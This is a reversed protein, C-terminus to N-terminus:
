IITIMYRVRGKDVVEAPLGIEKVRKESCKWAMPVAILDWHSYLGIRKYVGFVETPLLVLGYAEEKGEIPCRFQVHLALMGDLKGEAALKRVRMEGLDWYVDFSPIHQKLTEPSALARIGNYGENAWLGEEPQYRVYEVVALSGKLIIKGGSVAGYVDETTLETEASLIEIEDRISYFGDEKTLNFRPAPRTISGDVAAWSWSPATYERESHETRVVKCYWLLQTVLDARWLGALYEDKNISGWVRALGAIAVLKDKAYTLKRSTYDELITDWTWYSHKTNAVSSNDRITRSIAQKRTSSKFDSETRDPKLFGAPFWENAALEGCEWFLMHAGFHLNCPSLFREQCVWGRGSLPSGEIEGEWVNNNIIYHPEKQGAIIFQVELQRFPFPNRQRFLGSTSDSGVAASINCYSGGYINFMNSSEQKWDHPDDQIICLSDIWM